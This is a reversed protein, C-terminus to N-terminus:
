DRKQGIRGVKRLGFAGIFCATLMWAFLAWFSARYGLMLAEPSQKKHFGSGNTVAASILSTTTLGISTGLQALTNFVAGALAQTKTPFVESIILIGITFLVDVSLPSLLQPKTM